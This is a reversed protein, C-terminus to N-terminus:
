TLAQKLQAVIPAVAETEHGPAHGITDVIRSGVVVADAVKGVRRASDADKIGFGVGIPISIFQRLHDIKRSVEDIDLQSSGTVGRLSVYYIFGSARKAIAQIREDTTTPAILFICDLDNRRLECHLEDISEAPCDVTLLGDVGAAKAAQAFSAFGMRFVPNLYGMLVVATHQNETRFQIVAELVDHLGVHNKLARETAAQIVPGDAMPDSFPVGLEIIDTGERALTHMLKVTTAVDPDGCTIYSILATRGQLAQFIQQIRNM